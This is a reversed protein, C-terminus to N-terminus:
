LLAVAVNGAHNFAENRGTRLAMRQRGVLGLTLAASASPFIDAASGAIAQASVLGYFNDTAAMVLCSASVVGAAAVVVCRKRTSGDILAGAPTQVLLSGVSMAALAVGIRAPPWHLASALYVALFPGVGTRVDALFFNLWDLARLSQPSPHRQHDPM